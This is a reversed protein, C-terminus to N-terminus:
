VKKNKKDEALKSRGRDLWKKMNVAHQEVEGLVEQGDADKSGSKIEKYLQELCGRTAELQEIIEAGGYEVFQLQMVCQTITSIRKELDTEARNRKNAPKGSDDDAIKTRTRKDKSGVSGKGHGKGQAGKGGQQSKEDDDDNGARLEHDGPAPLTSIATGAIADAVSLASRADTQISIESSVEDLRM